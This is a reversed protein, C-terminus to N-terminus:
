EGFKASYNIRLADAERLQQQVDSVIGMDTQQDIKMSVIVRPNEVRKKYMVMGVQKVEVSMDDISIRGDRDIWLYSVHRKSPLKEIQKASPLFVNLGNFEKFVTTVMFFLLLMFVIDPMAATPIQPKANEKKRFQVREPPSYPAQVDKKEEIEPM